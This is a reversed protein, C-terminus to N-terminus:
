IESKEALYNLFLSLTYFISSIRKRMCLIDYSWYKLIYAHKFLICINNNMEKLFILSNRTKEHNSLNKTVKDSSFSICCLHICISPIVHHASACCLILYNIGVANLISTYFFVGYRFFSQSSFHLSFFEVVFFIM